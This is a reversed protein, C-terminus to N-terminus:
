APRRTSRRSLVALATSILVVTCSAPEPALSEATLQVNDFLAVGGDGGALNVTLKSNSPIDGPSIWSIASTGWSSNSVSVSNSDEALTFGDSTLWIHYSFTGTTPHGIGVSLIYTTSPEIAMSVLQSLVAGSSYGVNQGGLPGPPMYANTPNMTGGAFTSVSWSPAPDPTVYVSANSFPNASASSHGDM